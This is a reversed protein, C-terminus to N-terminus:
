VGTIIGGSIGNMIDSKYLYVGFEDKVIDFKCVGTDIRNSDITAPRPADTIYSLLVDYDYENDYFSGNNENMNDSIINNGNCINFVDKLILQERLEVRLNIFTFLKPHHCLTPTPSLWEGRNCFGFECNFLMKLIVDWNLNSNMKMKM